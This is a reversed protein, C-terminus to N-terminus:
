YCGEDMSVAYANGASISQIISNETYFRIASRRDGSWIALYDQSTEVGKYAKLVKSAADGIAIGGVAKGPAATFDIRALRDNMFMLTVQPHSRPSVHFCEPSPKLAEPVAEIEGHWSKRVQAFTAGIRIKGLGRFGLAGDVEGSAFAQPLVLLLLAAFLPKM